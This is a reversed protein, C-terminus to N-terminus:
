AALRNRVFRGGKMVVPMRAGQGQMLALDVTPDGDVVLLDALAGRAVVGLEGERGLLRANVSTASQLVEVPSMAAARITFENSQDDHMPGLLDTGFGIPVGAAKAIRLSEIGARRVRELKDLMAQPWGLRAGERALSDYTVLTPVLWAGARRMALASAEDVLNGHEISRIGAQMAREIARPSYAHAMVYTNAAEAEEVIARLEDVSYQTGDIPDTPSSVGGGAMVKIQHAGTRLQERAARRVEPVGDAISALMGLGACSCFMPGRVGSPRVDGHGGTQSIAQGAIFLRPGRFHGREVAEVLGHDAGSADRVTTFGRALMGEMIDKSQAAILSAPMMALKLFDPVTSTVHVHADILGPMLTRGAVDVIQADDVPTEAYLVDAIREGEVVVTADPRLTGSVSDFVTARRFAIRTM